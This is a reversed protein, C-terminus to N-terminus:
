ISRVLAAKAHALGSQITADSQEVMPQVIIAVSDSVFIIM